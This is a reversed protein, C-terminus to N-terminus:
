CNCTSRNPASLAVRYHRWLRTLGTLVVANLAAVLAIFGIAVLISITGGVGRIGDLSTDSLNAGAFAVLVALVLVVASHGMAFFFGVGVPRRGRVLMLRTTDDIAAIHDADFAHRMGLIYALDGSGRLWQRGRSKREAM